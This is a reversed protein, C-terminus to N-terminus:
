FTPSKEFYKIGNGSRVRNPLTYFFFLDNSNNKVRGISNVKNIRKEKNVDDFIIIIM